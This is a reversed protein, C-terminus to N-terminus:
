WASDIVTSLLAWDPQLNRGGPHYCGQHSTRADATIIIPRDFRTHPVEINDPAAKLWDGMHWHYHSFGIMNWGHLEETLVYILRHWTEIIKFTFAM